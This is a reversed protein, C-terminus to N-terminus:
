NNSNLVHLVAEKESADWVSPYNKKLKNLVLPDASRYYEYIEKNRLALLSRAFARLRLTKYANIDKEISLILKFPSKKSTRYSAFGEGLGGPGAFLDVVSFM